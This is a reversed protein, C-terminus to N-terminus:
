CGVQCSPFWCSARWAPLATSFWCFASRGNRGSKEFMPAACATAIGLIGYGYMELSWGLSRPYANTVMALTGENDELSQPVHATQLVYNFFILAASVAMLALATMELPRQEECGTGVLGIAVPGSLIIGCLVMVASASLYRARTRTVIV